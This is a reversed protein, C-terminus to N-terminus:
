ERSEKDYEANEIKPYLFHNPNEECELHADYHTWEGENDKIYILYTDHMWNLVEYTDYTLEKMTYNVWDENRDSNVEELIELPNLERPERSLRDIFLYLM